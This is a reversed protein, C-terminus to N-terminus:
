DHIWPFLSRRRSNLVTIKRTSSRTQNEVVLQVYYVATPVRRGATDKGDWYAVKRGPETFTLNLVRARGDPHDVALPIAVVQRLINFIRITVVASDGNQFLSEELHFPIWTEPNVPNPYNQELYFGQSQEAASGNRPEQARLAPPPLCGALLLLILLVSRACPM